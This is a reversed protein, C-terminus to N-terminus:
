SFCEVDEDTLSGSGVSWITKTPQRMTGRSSCEGLAGSVACFIFKRYQSLQSRDPLFPTRTMSVADANAPRESSPWDLRKALSKEGTFAALASRSVNRLGFDHETPASDKYSGADLDRYAGYSRCIIALM